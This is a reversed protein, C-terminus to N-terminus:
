GNTGKQPRQGFLTPIYKHICTGVVKNCTQGDITLATCRKKKHKIQSWPTHGSM